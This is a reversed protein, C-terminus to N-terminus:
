KEKKADADGTPQACELARTLGHSASLIAKLHGSELKGSAMKEDLANTYMPGMAKLYFEAGNWATAALLCVIYVFHALRHHFLIVAIGMGISSYILHILLYVGQVVIKPFRDLLRKFFKGLAGMTLIRDWLTQYCNREIYNGLLIFIFLFYLLSWWLYFYVMANYWLELPGVDHCRLTKDHCINFRADYNWRLGFMLMMPSVHVIVSTMHAYSHFILAHNFCLVALALPGTANIFAIQFWM